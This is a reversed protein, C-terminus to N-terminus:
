ADKCNSRALQVPERMPSLRTQSEYFIRSFLSASNKTGASKPKGTSDAAALRHYRSRFVRSARLGASAGDAPRWVLVLTATSPREPGHGPFLQRISGGPGSLARKREWRWGGTKIHCATVPGPTGEAGNELFLDGSVSTIETQKSDNIHWLTRSKQFMRVPTRRPATKRRRTSRWLDGLSSAARPLHHCTKASPSLGKASPPLHSQWDSGPATRCVCSASALHLGLDGDYVEVAEIGQEGIGLREGVFFGAVRMSRPSTLLHPRNNRDVKLANVIYILRGMAHGNQTRGDLNKPSREPRDSKEVPFGPAVSKGDETLGRSSCRWDGLLVVM